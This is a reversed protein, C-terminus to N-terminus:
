KQLFFFDAIFLSEVLMSYVTNVIRENLFFFFPKSKQGDARWEALHRSLAKDGHGRKDGNGM